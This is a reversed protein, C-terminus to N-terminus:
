MVWGQIIVKVLALKLKHQDGAVAGLTQTLDTLKVGDHFLDYSTTTGDPNPTEKVNFADMARQRLAGVTEQLSAHPDVFPEKASPFRVQVNITTVHGFQGAGVAASIASM